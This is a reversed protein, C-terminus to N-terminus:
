EFHVTQKVHSWALENSIMAEIEEWEGERALLIALPDSTATDAMAEYEFM